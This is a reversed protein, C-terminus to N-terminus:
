LLPLLQFIVSFLFNLNKGPFVVQDFKGPSLLVNLPTLIFFGCMSLSLHEHLLIKQQEHQLFLFLQLFFNESERGKGNNM